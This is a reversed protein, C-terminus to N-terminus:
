FLKTVNICRINSENNSNGNNITHLDTSYVERYYFLFYYIKEIDNHGLEDRIFHLFSESINNRTEYHSVVDSYNIEAMAM